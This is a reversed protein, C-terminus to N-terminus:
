CLGGARIMAMADSATVVEYGNAALRTQLIHVNAPTDDVVLIRPPTRM